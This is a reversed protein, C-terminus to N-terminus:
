SGAETSDFRELVVDVASAQLPISADMQGLTLDFVCEGADLAPDLSIMVNPSLGALAAEDPFDLPSVQVGIVMEKSLRRAWLDITESVMTQFHAPEAFLRRLAIRALEIAIDRNSAISESLSRRATDLASQFLALRESQREDAAARGEAIGREHARAVAEDSENELEAIRQELSSIHREVASPREEEEPTQVAERVSPLDRLPVAEEGNRAPAIFAHIREAAVQQRKVVTM